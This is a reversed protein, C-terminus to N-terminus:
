LSRTALGRPLGVASVSGLVAFSLYYLLSDGYILPQFLWQILLVSSLSWLLHMMLSRGSFEIRVLVRFLRVWAVLAIVLLLLLPLASLLGISSVIDLPVSHLMSLQGQLTGPQSNGQLSVSIPTSHDCLYATFRLSRGGRVLDPWALLARKYVDFREDCLQLPILKEDFLFSLVLMMSLFLGSFLGARKMSQSFPLLRAFLCRIARTLLPLSALLLSVIWLRGNALPQVSLLGVVSFALLLWGSRFRQACFAAISAPLCALAVIGYQEISRVNISAENGWALFLMAQDGSNAFWDLGRTKLLAALLFSLGGLCYGAYFTKLIRPNHRIGVAGFLLLSWPLLTANVADLFLRGGLSWFGFLLMAMPYSLSFLSVLILQPREYRCAEAVLTALEALRGSRFLLWAFALAIYLLSFSRPIHAGAMFALLFLLGLSRSM